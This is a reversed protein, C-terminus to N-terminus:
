RESLASKISIHIPKLMYELITKQGTIIDAMVTMGPLVQNTGKSGVHNQSLQIRGQYFREGNQDDFTGASIHHLTGSVFGYRSFDFTSFKVQVPQGVHVHGIDKPQIKVEVEVGQDIPVIKMLDDAPKVVSGITNVSLGKVMGGVSARIDLRNLRAELKAIVEDNQAIDSDLLALKQFTEDRQTAALLDLESQANHIADEAQDIQNTLQAIKGVAKNMNQKDNLVEMDSIFGKANLRLRRDHMDQLIAFNNEENQLDSRLSKVIKEKELIRTSLLHREKTKATIMGDFFAFQNETQGEVAIGQSQFNPRRNEIFADLREKELRLNLGNIKARNLDQLVNADSLTILPDGRRVLAGDSVHILEVIGGDFHQITQENGIPIVEGPTHAVENVNTLGAWLLFAFIASAFIGITARIIHPNVSEELQIAQALYRTQKEQKRTINKKKQQM